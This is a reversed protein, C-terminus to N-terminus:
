RGVEDFFVEKATDYDMQGLHNYFQRETKLRGETKLQLYRKIARPRWWDMIANVDDKFLPKLRLESEGIKGCLFEKTNEYFSSFYVGREHGHMFHKMPIGATKFIMAMVKGKYNTVPGSIGEDQKMMGAFDKANTRKVYQLWKDYVEAKPQIPVAGKSLGLQKWWKLSDYMSPVGFLSTTTMGALVDGYQLQWENRIVESTMLAAILKGGLFNFGFPQTAVITSGIATHNLKGKTRQEKTWGIFEDRCGIAPFDGSIAGIGLVPWPLANEYITHFPSGGTTGTETLNTDVVFVKIFRGPTQNYEGTHVFLRYLEWLKTLREDDAIIVKPKLHEIHAVTLTEDAFHKPIWLTRQANHISYRDTQIKHQLENYKKQFTYEKVELSKLQQLNGLLARKEKDFDFATM